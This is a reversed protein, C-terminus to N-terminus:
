KSFQMWIAGGLNCACLSLWVCIEWGGLLDKKRYNFRYREWGLHGPLGFHIELLQLYSGIKRIYRRILLTEVFLFLCILCPLYSVIAAPPEHRQSVIWAWMGGSVLLAYRLFDGLQQIERDISRRLAEFEATLFAQEAPDM